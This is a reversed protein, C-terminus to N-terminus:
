MTLVEDMTGLAEFLFPVIDSKMLVEVRTIDHIKLVNSLCQVSATMLRRDRSLLFRKLVQPFTAGDTDVRFLSKIAEFDLTLRRLLAVCLIPTVSLRRWEDSIVM